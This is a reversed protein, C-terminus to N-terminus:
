SGFLISFLEQAIISLNEALKIDLRDDHVKVKYM